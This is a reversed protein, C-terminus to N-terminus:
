YNGMHGIRGKCRELLIAVEKRDRDSLECAQEALLEKAEQWSQRALDRYNNDMYLNSETIKGEISKRVKKSKSNFFM